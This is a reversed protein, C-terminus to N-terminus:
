NSLAERAQKDVHWHLDKSLHAKLWTTAEQLSMKGVPTEMTIALAEFIAFRMTSAGSNNIIPNDSGPWKTVTQVHWGRGSKEVKSSIVM